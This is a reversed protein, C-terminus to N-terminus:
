TSKLKFVIPFHDSIKKDPVGKDNYLTIDGAETVIKLSSKDFYDLLQPRVLVQDFINWFYCIMGQKDNYYTGPPGPSIDGFYSWMPNYFFERRAGKVIRSNKRATKCDMIAHIGEAAVVGNQFPNMNLDGVLITRSHGVSKEKERIFSAYRPCLFDQAADKEWLKSPLHASVLLIDDGIPPSIQHIQVYKQDGLNTIYESLRSYLRIRSTSSPVISFPYEVDTNIEILLDYDNIKNPEVLILVDTNHTKILSRIHKKLPKRCLNWFLFNM